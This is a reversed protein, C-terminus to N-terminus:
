PGIYNQGICNCGAYDHGVYNHGVRVALYLVAVGVSFMFVGGAANNWTMPPWPRFVQIPVCVSM